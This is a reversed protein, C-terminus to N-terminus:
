PQAGEATEPNLENGGRKRQLAAALMGAALGCIHGEWSINEEGNWIGWVMGGYLAGVVIAILIWVLSRQLFGHLVLFGLYGFILGSAGIHVENSQGFLWVGIGAGLTVIISTVWFRRRGTMLMIWGLPILSLTNSLLHQFGGHLFPALPIGILGGPDRPRIGLYDLRSGLLYDVSEIGWLLGLWVALFIAQRGVHREANELFEAFRDWSM